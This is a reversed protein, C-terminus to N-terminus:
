MEMNHYVEDIDDIGELWEILAENNKKAEDDCTVLMKPIMEINAEKVKYGAKELGEKVLYLQDPATIVFYAEEEEQFDEGGKELVELLLQDPDIGSKPIQLVGKQDFQYSVAGPNAVVGGRKNTAIRIDSYTRNKNDTMAECIIGVGGHGYLEYTITEYQVDSAEAKKINREINENPLNVEKAKLIALRLKANTKPDSGGQKVATIIEKTVKSFAKGKKADAREKKHKINAWKSHGAM